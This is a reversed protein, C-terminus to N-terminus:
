RKNPKSQPTSIANVMLIEATAAFSMATAIPEVMGTAAPICSLPLWGAGSVAPQAFAVRQSNTHRAEAKVIGDSVTPMGPTARAPCSDAGLGSRNVPMAEGSSGEGGRIISM